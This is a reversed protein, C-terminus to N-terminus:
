VDVFSFLKTAAASLLILASTEQFSDSLAHNEVLEKLTKIRFYNLGKQPTVSRIATHHVLMGISIISHRSIVECIYSILLRSIVECILRGNTICIKSRYSNLHILLQTFLEPVVLKSSGQSKLISIFISYISCNDM